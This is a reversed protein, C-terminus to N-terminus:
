IVIFVVEKKGAEMIMDIGNCGMGGDNLVIYVKFM